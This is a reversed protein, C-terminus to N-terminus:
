RHQLLREHMAVIQDVVSSLDAGVAVYGHNRLVIISQDAGFTACALEALALTGYPEERVTEPVLGALETSTAVEDHAHVVAHSAPRAVLIQHHLMAESTPQRPGQYRVQQTTLDCDEVWVVEDPEIDSLHCGSATVAFGSELRVSMNGGNAPTMGYRALREGEAHFLPQLAVCAEPQAAASCRAEYKIGVYGPLNEKTRSPM